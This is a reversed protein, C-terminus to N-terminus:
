YTAPRDTTWNVVHAAKNWEICCSRFGNSSLDWSQSGYFSCRYGKFPKWLINTQVGGYNGLLKNVSANFLCRKFDCDNVDSLKVNVTDGLHKIHDMWKISTGELYVTDDDTVPSGFKICMTKKANFTINYEAAFSESISLMQNMTCRM